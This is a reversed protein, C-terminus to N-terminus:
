ELIAFLKLKFSDYPQLKTPDDLESKSVTHSAWVTFEPEHAHEM